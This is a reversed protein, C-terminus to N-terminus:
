ELVVHWWVMSIGQCSVPTGCFSFCVVGWCVRGAVEGAEGRARSRGGSGGQASDPRPHQGKLRHDRDDRSTSAPAFHAHRLGSVVLRGPPAVSPRPCAHSVVTLRGGFPGLDRFCFRALNPTPMRPLLPIHEKKEFLFPLSHTDYTM